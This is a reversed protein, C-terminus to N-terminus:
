NCKPLFCYGWRTAPDTTYCWLGRPDNDPNRCYNHHGGDTPILNPIHPIRVDWRQCIKDSYTKSLKGRYLTSNGTLCDNQCKSVNCYQWRVSSNTTYCWLGASDLDPKRCYNHHGGDEPVRSPKHPTMVNWRQCTLGTSTYSRTGEYSASPGDLCDEGHKVEELQTTITFPTAWTSLILVVVLQLVLM